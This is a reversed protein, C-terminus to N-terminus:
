VRFGLGQTPSVCTKSTYRGVHLTSKQITFKYIYQLHGKTQQIQMGYVHLNALRKSCHHTIHQAQPDVLFEWILCCDSINYTNSSKFLQYSIVEPEVM